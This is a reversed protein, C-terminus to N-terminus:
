RSQERKEMAYLRDLWEEHTMEGNNNTQHVAQLKPHVYPAVKEALDCADIKLIRKRVPDAERQAEGWIERMTRVMIELPTIDGTLINQAVAAANKALLQTSRNPTGKQRGGRREGPASGAPM